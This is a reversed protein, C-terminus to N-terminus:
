PSHNRCPPGNGLAGCLKVGIELACQWPLAGQEALTGGSVYEMVIYPRGDNESVGHDHISVINPHEALAAMAHCEADFRKLSPEDLAAASLLKIAVLRDLSKQTARYVVGFGGRGIEVADGYGSLRLGCGPKEVLSGNTASCDSAQNAIGSM